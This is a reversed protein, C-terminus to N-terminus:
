YHGNQQLRSSADQGSTVTKEATPTRIIGTNEPTGGTAAWGSTASTGATAETGAITQTGPTASTRINSNEQM